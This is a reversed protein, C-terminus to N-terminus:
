KIENLNNDNIEKYGDNNEPIEENNKLYKKILFSFNLNLIKKTVVFKKLCYGGVWRIFTLLFGNIRCYILELISIYYHKNQTDRNLKPTELFFVDQCTQNLYLFQPLFVIRCNLIILYLYTQPNNSLKDIDIQLLITGSHPGVRLVQEVQHM